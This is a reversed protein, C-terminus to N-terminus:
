SKLPSRPMYYIPLVLNKQLHVVTAADDFPDLMWIMPAILLTPQIVYSMLRPDKLFASAM